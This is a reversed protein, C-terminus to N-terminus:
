RMKATNKVLLDFSDDAPVPCSMVIADTHSGDPQRYYQRRRGSEVFGATHYLAIAARNDAAVELFATVAGRASAQAKFRGVLDRGIGQRRAAPDVALTLVEAEDAVVRGLIFGTPATLLFVAPSTLLDTFAAAGWPKPTTFCTAHLRALEAATM